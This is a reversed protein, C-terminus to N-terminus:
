EDFVVDGAVLNVTYNGSDYKLEAYVNCDALVSYNNLTFKTRTTESETAPEISGSLTVPAKSHSLSLSASSLAKCLDNYKVVADKYSAGKYMPANYMLYFDYDELVTNKDVSGPILVLSNDASYYDVYSYNDEDAEDSILAEYNNDYENIVASLGESLTKPKQNIPTGNGDTLSTVIAPVGNKFTGKVTTGNSYVIYGDGNFKGEVYTGKYLENYKNTFWAAGSFLGEAATTGYYVTMKDLDISLNNSGTLFDKEYSGQDFYKKMKYLICQGYAGDDNVKGFFRTSDKIIIGDALFGKDFYGFERKGKNLDYFFGTDQLLNNNTKDISGILIQNDTQEGYFNDAKLFSLYAATSSSVWDGDNWTGEYLTKSDIEYQYGSGDKKGNAYINDSITKGSAPIYICRGEYTDNKMGGTLFSNDAYVFSGSGEKKGDAFNGVYLDGDTDLHAGRGNLKGNKWEGSLFTGDKFLLVGKGNYQGNVFYGSYHLTNANSYIAIGIGNPQKNKIEGIYDFSTGWDDRLGEIRGTTTQATLQQLLVTVAFLTFM